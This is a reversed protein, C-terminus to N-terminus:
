FGLPVSVTSFPIDKGGGGDEEEEDDGPDLLIYLAYAVFAGAVVYGAIKKYNIGDEGEDELEIDYTELTDAMAPAAADLLGPFGTGSEGPLHLYEPGDEMFCSTRGKEEQLDRGAPGAARAQGAALFACIVLGATAPRIMTRMYVIM